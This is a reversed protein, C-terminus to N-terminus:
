RMPILASPTGRLRLPDEEMLIETDGDSSVGLGLEDLESVQGGDAVGALALTNRPAM